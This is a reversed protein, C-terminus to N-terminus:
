RICVSAGSTKSMRLSLSAVSFSYPGPLVARPQRIATRSTSRPTRM